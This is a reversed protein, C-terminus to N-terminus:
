FHTRTKIASFNQVMLELGIIAYCNYSLVSCSIFTCHFFPVHHHKGLADFLEYEGSTRTPVGAYFTGGVKILVLILQERTTSGEGSRFLLDNYLLLKPRECNCRSIV